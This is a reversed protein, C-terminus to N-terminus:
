DGLDVFTGCSAKVDEGVRSIIQVLEVRHSLQMQNVYAAIGVESTEFGSGADYPNYRVINMKTHIDHHKLWEHILAVDEESDNVGDILAHHLRLGHDIGHFWEGVIDPDVSKPIWRKRVQPKLSYLSYYFEIQPDLSLVDNRIWSKVDLDPNSEILSTPFITSIKFQINVGPIYLNAMDKFMTYLSKFDHVIHPNELADGRAMFNFHITTINDIRNDEQMYVADLACHVQINFNDFSAPKRSTQGTQTLHCFRCALSCGSMSSVYIILTEDTRQVARAEFIEGDDDRLILNISRDMESRLTDVLKM